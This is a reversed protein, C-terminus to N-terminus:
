LGGTAVIWGSVMWSAKMCCLLESEFRSEFLVFAGAALDCYIHLMRIFLEHADDYVVTLCKIRQM